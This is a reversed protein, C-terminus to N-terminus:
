LGNKYYGIMCHNRRASTSCCKNRLLYSIWFFTAPNFNWFTKLLHWLLTANQLYFFCAHYVKVLWVLLISKNIWFHFKIEFVCLYQLKIKLLVFRDQINYSILNYIEFVKNQKQMKMRKKMGCRFFHPRM